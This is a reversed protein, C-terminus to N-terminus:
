DNLVQRVGSRVKASGQGLLKAGNKYVGYTSHMIGPQQDTGVFANKFNDKSKRLQENGAEFLDALQRESRKYLGEESMLEGWVKTSHARTSAGLDYTHKSALRVADPLGQRM